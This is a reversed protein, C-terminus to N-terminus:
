IPILILDSAVQIDWSASYADIGYLSRFNKGWLPDFFRLMEYYTNLATHMLRTIVFDPSGKPKDTLMKLDSTCFRGLQEEWKLRTSAESHLTEASEFLWGNQTLINMSSDNEWSLWHEKM